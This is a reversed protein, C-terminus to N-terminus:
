LWVRGAEQPALDPPCTRPCKACPRTRPAPEPSTMDIQSLPAGGAFHFFENDSLAIGSFRAKAKLNRHTLIARKGASISTV